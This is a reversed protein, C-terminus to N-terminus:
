RNDVVAGYSTYCINPSELRIDRGLRDTDLYMKINDPIDCFIYGNDIYYEALSSDSDVGELLDYNDLEDITELVEAISMSSECELIAALKEYDHDALGDLREALKNLEQISAYESIHLNGFLVEYDTIFFEDGESGIRGIVADLEEQPIPLKLWEGCLIGCNYKHLNTLFISIRREEM